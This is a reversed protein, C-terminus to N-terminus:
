PSQLAAALSKQPPFPDASAKMNCVRGNETGIALITHPDLNLVDGVLVSEVNSNTDACGRRVENDTFLEESNLGFRRAVGDLNDGAVVKYALPTGSKSTTVTGRAYPQSGNDVAFYIPENGATEGPIKVAAKMTKGTSTPSPSPPTSSPGAPVPAQNTPHTSLTSATCGSLLAATALAISIPLALRM